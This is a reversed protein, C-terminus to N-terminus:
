TEGRLRPIADLDDSSIPRAHPNAAYFAEKRHLEKLGELYGFYNDAHKRESANAKEMRAVPFNDPGTIM